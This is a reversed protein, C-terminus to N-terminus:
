FCFSLDECEHAMSVLLPFFPFIIPLLQIFLTNISDNIVSHCCLFLHDNHFCRTFHVNKWEGKWVCKMRSLSFKWTCSRTGTEESREKNFNFFIFLSWNYFRVIQLVHIHRWTIWELRSCHSLSRLGGGIEVWGKSIVWSLVSAPSSHSHSFFDFRILLYPVM